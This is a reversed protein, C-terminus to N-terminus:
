EQLAVDLLCKSRKSYIITGTYVSDDEIANINCLVKYRVIENTNVFRIVIYAGSRNVSHCEEVYFEGTYSLYSEYKYDFYYPVVQVFSVIFILAMMFIATSIALKKQQLKVCVIILAISVCIIISIIIVGLVFQGSIKDEIEQMKIGKKDIHRKPM